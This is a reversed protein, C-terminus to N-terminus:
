LKVEFLYAGNTIELIWGTENELFSIIEPIAGTNKSTLVREGELLLATDDPKPLGLVATAGVPIDLLLQLQGDRKEWSLHVRGRVTELTAIAHTLDQGFYPSVGIKQWGPALCSLGAINKYFWADISGLMIHNHSNVGGGVMKEWREWVTTAGEEVMYGLSPYDKQSVVQYAVDAYGNQTLVDLIYRTGVIGTDLHYDHLRVVSEVLQTMIKEKVEAPPMDLYLPLANSTQNMMKDFPGNYNALYKGDKLFYDNFAIKIEEALTELERADVEKELVRAIKALFFVDHYYFWTATLEVPTKKPSLSGPQSWDGYKGLNKIIHKDSQDTLFEIYQKFYDYNEELIQVDDYYWWMLWSLSIYASAWAPDGPYLQRWYPPVVDPISGNEHQALRIDRIFKRFFNIMNFNFIAEEAALVADGMWGQREDRQPSDTPISVLNSLQGRLVIEHIRNILENSCHFDGTPSVDSHIFCGTLSQLTPVGPFGTVEVYRFGHYTFRPEYIELGEGKLIYTDTAEALKNTAPNLSGDRHILEAFHLNVQTGRPGRVQLRVWGSFNQGLDFVYVGTQPALIQKPTIEQVVRVPESIQAALPAPPAPVCTEWHSDVFGACNWGPEELRADYKEGFYIGNEQLPGSDVRWGPDSGITEHTGDTFELHLQFILKPREFGFKKLLHGNGLIVGIANEAQIWETVDYTTYRALKLYDTFGPDLVCDGVKKGNLHLEYVGLGCVYIRAQKVTKTCSFEHRFYTAHVQHQDAPLNKTANSEFTRFEKKTIWQAQWDAANLLGTEFFAPASFPSENGDADWWRVCWYYRQSSELPKGDYKLNVSQATEMKGSDWVDPQHNRLMEPHTAVWIQCGAPSQNRQTAELIWSFRPQKVDIGLPNKRYECRLRVPALLNM